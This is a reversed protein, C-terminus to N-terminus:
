LASQKEDFTDVYESPAIMLQTWRSDLIQAQEWYTKNYPKTKLDNESYLYGKLVYKIRTLQGAYTVFRTYNQDSYQYEVAIRM